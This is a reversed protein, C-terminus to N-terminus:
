RIKNEVIKIIMAAANMAFMQKYSHQKTNQTTGPENCFWFLYQAIAPLLVCAM